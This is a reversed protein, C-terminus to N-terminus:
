LTRPRAFYTRPYFTRRANQYAEDDGSEGSTTQKSRAYLAVGDRWREM